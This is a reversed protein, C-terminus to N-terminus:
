YLAVIRWDFEGHGVGDNVYASWVGFGFNGDDEYEDMLFISDDEPECRLADKLESIMTKWAAERSEFKETFIERDCVSVLLYRYAM